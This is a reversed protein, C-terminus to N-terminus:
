QNVIKKIDGDSYRVINLGRQMTSRKVGAADYIAVVERSASEQVICDVIGSGTIEVIRRGASSVGSYEPVEDMNIYARNERIGSETGCKQITNNSLLYMGESVSCGDFSGYLGNYAKAETVAEGSMVAVIEDGSAEFIYPMGAELQGNEIEGLVISEANGDSATQKGLIEFATANRLVSKQSLCVTGYNGSSVARIYEREKKFIMVNNNNGSPYCSFVKTGSKNTYQIYWKKAASNTIEVQKEDNEFKLNWAFEEKPKISKAYDNTRLINDTISPKVITCLYGNGTHFGFLDGNKTITLVQVNDYESKVFIDNLITIGVYGRNNTRQETSMAVMSGDSNWSVFIVEDGDSLQSLDTVKVFSDAFASGCICLMLCAICMRLIKFSNNM